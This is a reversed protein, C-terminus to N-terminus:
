PSPCWLGQSGTRHKVLRWEKDRVRESCVVSMLEVMEEGCGVGPPLPILCEM